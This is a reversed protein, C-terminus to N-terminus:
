VLGGNMGAGLPVPNEPPIRIFPNNWWCNGVPQTLTLVIAMCTVTLIMPTAVFTCKTNEDMLM